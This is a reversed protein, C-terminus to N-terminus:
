IVDIDCCGWFDFGALYYEFVLGYAPKYDCLKYPVAVSARVGTKREFLKEFERLSSRVFEVNDPVTSPIGCDTLFIWRISPNYKCSQLHAPFWLPWKGFYPVVFAISPCSAQEAPRPGRRQSPRRRSTLLAVLM